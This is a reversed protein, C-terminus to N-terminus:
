AEYEDGAQAVLGREALLGLLDAVRDEDYGVAEALDSVTSASDDQLEYYVRRASPSSVDTVSPTDPNTPTAAM